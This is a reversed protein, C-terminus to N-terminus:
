EFAEFLFLSLFQVEGAKSIIRPEENHM